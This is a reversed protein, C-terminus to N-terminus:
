VGPSNSNLDRADGPGVNKIRIALTTTEEADLVGESLTIDQFSLLPPLAASPTTPKQRQTPTSPPTVPKQRAVSPTATEEKRPKWNRVRREAEAIEAATMRKAIRNRDSSADKHGQAAALTFWVYAAVDYDKRVGKGRYYMFGLNYQATANGQEAAKRYWKVAEVDDKTVGYGNRYMFGLNSQASAYGQEAAKHYWKVAEVYDKAVGYGNRYMVGLYYQAEANEEHLLHNGTDFPLQTTAASIRLWVKMLTRGYHHRLVYVCLWFPLYPDCCRVTFRGQQLPLCVSPLAPNKSARM